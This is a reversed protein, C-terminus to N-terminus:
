LDKRRDEADRDRPRLLRDGRSRSGQHDEPHVAARASSAIAGEPAALVAVAIAVASSSLIAGVCLTVRNM